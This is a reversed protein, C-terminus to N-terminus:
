IIQRIINNLKECSAEYSWHEIAYQRIEEGYKEDPLGTWGNTIESLKNMCDEVTGDFRDVCPREDYCIHPGCLRAVGSACSEQCFRNCTEYKPNLVVVGASGLVSAVKNQPVSGYFKDTVQRLEHELELNIAQHNGWLGASGLYATSYGSEDQLERFLDIFFESQKEFNVAGGAVVVQERSESPRFLDCDIPEHVVDTVPLDFDRFYNAQWEMNPIWLDVVEKLADLESGKWRFIESDSGYVMKPASCEKLGKIRQTLKDDNRLGLLEIIVVDYLETLMPDPEAAIEINHELGWSAQLAKTKTGMGGAFRSKIYFDATIYLINAM